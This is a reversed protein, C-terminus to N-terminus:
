NDEGYFQELLADQLQKIFERKTNSNQEAHAIIIQLRRFIDKHSGKFLPYNQNLTITEADSLQYAGDPAVGPEWMDYKLKWKRGGVFVFESKKTAASNITVTRTKTDIQVAPKKQTPQTDTEVIFGRKKLREVQEFIVTEKPVVDARSSQTLQANIKRRAGDVDEVYFAFQRLKSRFYERFDEHDQSQTFSDRDLTIAEDLGAVINVEGNLWNLRSFTRGAVGLDFYQRPGVGVRHLRLRLGRAEDPKTTHWPTGIVWSFRINGVYEFGDSHGLVEEVFDNATLTEGNLIVNFNVPVPNVYQAIVSHNPFSLPLIDQLEWKLRAMGSYSRISNKYKNKDQSQALYHHFISTTELLTIRTYHHARLRSDEFEEGGVLAAAAVDQIESEVPQFFKSAPIRAVFVLSSGAVTSEVKVTRCFPFMALFGIGFQGIRTRGSETTRTPSRKEGAIRLFFDFEDPTMGLGDDSIIITKNQEQIDITVTTADADYANSVLERLARPFSEYTSASLLLVIRKDVRLQKPWSM